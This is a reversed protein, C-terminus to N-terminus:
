LNRMNICIPCNTNVLYIGIQLLNDRTPMRDLMARWIMHAGKPPIEIYWIKNWQFEEGDGIRLEQIISYAAKVSFDGSCDNM